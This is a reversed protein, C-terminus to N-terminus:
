ASSFTRKLALYSDPRCKADALKAVPQWKLALAPSGQAISRANRESRAAAAEFLGLRPMFLTTMTVTAGLEALLHLRGRRSMAAGCFARVFALTAVM